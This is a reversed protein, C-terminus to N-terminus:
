DPGLWDSLNEVIEGTTPDSLELLVRRRAGAGAEIQITSARGGGLPRGSFTMEILEGHGYSTAAAKVEGVRVEPPAGYSSTVVQAPKGVLWQRPRPRAPMGLANRIAVGIRWAIESEVPAEGEFILATIRDVRFSRAEGTRSDRGRVYTPADLSIGYVGDILVTRPQGSGGYVFTIAAGVNDAIKTDLFKEGADPPVFDGREALAVPGLNQRLSKTPGASGGRSFIGFLGM